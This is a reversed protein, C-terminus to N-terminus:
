VIDRNCEQAALREYAIPAPQCTPCNLELCLLLLLMMLLLMACVPSRGSFFFFPGLCRSIISYHIITIFIETSASFPVCFQISFLRSFCLDCCISLAAATLISQPDDDDNIYSLSVVSFWLLLNVQLVCIYVLFHMCCICLCVIYEYWLDCPVIMSLIVSFQTLDIIITRNKKKTKKREKWGFHLHDIVASCYVDVISSTSM